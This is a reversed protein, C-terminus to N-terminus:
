FKNTYYKKMCVFHLQALGGWVCVHVCVAKLSHFHPLGITLHWACWSSGGCCHGCLGGWGGAQASLPARVRVVPSPDPSGVVHAVTFEHPPSMDNM